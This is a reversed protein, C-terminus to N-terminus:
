VLDTVIIHKVVALSQSRWHLPLVRLVAYLLLIRKFHLLMVISITPPTNLIILNISNLLIPLMLRRLYFLPIFFIFFIYMNMM